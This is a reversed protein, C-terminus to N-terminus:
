RAGATFFDTYRTLIQALEARTATDGPCLKNGSKGAIIGNGVAWEFPSVTWKNLNEGDAYTLLNVEKAVSNQGKTAAYRQLITVM